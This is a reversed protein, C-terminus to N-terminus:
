FTNSYASIISLVSARVVSPWSVLWGITIVLCIVVISLLFDVKFVSLIELGFSDDSVEFDFIWVFAIVQCFVILVLSLVGKVEDFTVDFVKEFLYFRSDVIINRNFPEEWKGLWSNM